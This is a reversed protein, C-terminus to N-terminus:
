TQKEADEDETDDAGGCFGGNKAEYITLHVASLPIHATISGDENQATIDVMDPHKKTMRKVRNVFKKQSFTVTVTDSGNIWEILNEKLNDM